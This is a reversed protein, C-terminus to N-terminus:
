FFLVIGQSSSFLALNTSTVLHHSELPFFCCSPYFQFCLQFVLFMFPSVSVFLFSIHGSGSQFWPGSWWHAVLGQLGSPTGPISELHGWSPPSLSSWVLVEWLSLTFLQPELRPTPTGLLDKPGRSKWMKGCLSALMAIAHCCSTLCGTAPHTCVCVCMTGPSPSMRYTDKCKGGPSGRGERNTTPRKGEKLM